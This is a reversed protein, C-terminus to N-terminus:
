SMLRGSSRRFGLRAFKGAIHWCRVNPEFVGEFVMRSVIANQLPFRIQLNFNFLIVIPNQLPEPKESATPRMNKCRKRRVTDQKKKLIDNEYSAPM